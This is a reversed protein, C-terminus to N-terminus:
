EESDSTASAFFERRRRRSGPMQDIIADKRRLLDKLEANEREKEQLQWSTQELIGMITDKECESTQYKRKWTASEFQAKTLQDMFEERTEFTIPLSSSFTSTSPSRQLPYPMGFKAAREIVWQIYSERVLGSRKGLQEKTKKHIARWAAVFMGRVDASDPQNIYFVPDIALHHPKEMPYGFQRRALIPNYSIGGRIGILPVNGFGGCSDIIAETSCAPVFWAIDSPTLSMIKQSWRTNEPNAEFNEPLHSIFWKYLLPTCCLITGQGKLTRDHISHYTDALLTPVPNRSLFIKIANKDVLGGVDPFLILGYILLALINYFVDYSGMEEHIFAQQYLFKTTLGKQPTLNAKIIATELHLAAAIAAPKPEPELGNFPEKDSIPIGILHSYEELTPVLQFDLFTFCHCVIDYFQVLTNLIGPVMKVGFLNLLRGHRVRFDEPSAVKSALKRLESTDPDRFRFQRTKRIVREM